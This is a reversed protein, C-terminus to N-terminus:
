RASQQPSMTTSTGMTNTSRRTPRDLILRRTKASATVITHFNRALASSLRMQRSTDTGMARHSAELRSRPVRAGLVVPRASAAAQDEHVRREIARGTWSGFFTGTM